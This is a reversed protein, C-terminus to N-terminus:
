KVVFSIKQEGAKFFYVGPTFSKIELKSDGAPLKKNLLTAGMSNYIYVVSPYTLSVYVTGGTVPNPYLKVAPGSSLCSVTKSYNIKGDLDVQALRYYWTNRVVPADTYQYFSHSASNGAAAVTGTTVWDTGNGSRQILFSRTNLEAATSWHLLVSGNLQSAATFDLWVVPASVTFTVDIRGGSTSTTNTNFLTVTAGSISNGGINGGNGAQESGAVHTGGGTSGFNGGGGGGGGGGDGAPQTGVGGTNSSGNATYTNTGPQGSGAGALNAMGGGGGAGAAVIKIITSITVVTAAGGGGGGGSSGTAGANGGKGGNYSASYTAVGGNGGGSNTINNTGNTGLGGPNIGVVNGAAVPFTASVYGVNGAAPNTCGSGCDMGGTGGGAGWVTLTVASVGAPVTWTTQTTYTTTTQASAIISSFCLLAPLHLRM